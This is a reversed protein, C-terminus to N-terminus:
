QRLRLKQGTQLANPNISPNLSELTALPVGTKSSITSLNDNPQITYYKPLRKPHKQHHAGDTTTTTTVSAHTKSSTSDLRHHVVLYTAAIAAILAIPALYRAPTRRVM